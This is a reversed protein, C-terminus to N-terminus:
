DRLRGSFATLRTRKMDGQEFAERTADLYFTISSSSISSISGPRQLASSRDIWFGRGLAHRLTDRDSLTREERLGLRLFTRPGSERGGPRLKERVASDRAESM